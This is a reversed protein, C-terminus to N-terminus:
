LCKLKTSPIWSNAHSRSKSSQQLNKGSWSEWRHRTEEGAGANWGGWGGVSDGGSQGCHQEGQSFSNFSGDRLPVSPVLPALIVDGVPVVGPTQVTAPHRRRQRKTNTLCVCTTLGGERELHNFSDTLTHNSIGASMNNINNEIVNIDTDMCGMNTSNNGAQRGGVCM